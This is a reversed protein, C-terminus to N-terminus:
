EPLKDHMSTAEMHHGKPMRYQLLKAVPEGGRIWTYGGRYPVKKGAEDVLVANPFAADVFLMENASAAIQKDWERQQRTKLLWICADCIPIAWLPWRQYASRQFWHRLKDRM